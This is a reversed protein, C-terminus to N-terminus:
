LEIGKKDQPQRGSSGIGFRFIGADNTVLWQRPPVSEMDDVLGVITDIVVGDVTSTIDWAWGEREEPGRVDFGNSKLQAVVFRALEEGAPADDDARDTPFSAVFQVFTRLAM